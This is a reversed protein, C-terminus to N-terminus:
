IGVRVLCLSGDDRSDSRRDFRKKKKKEKEKRSLCNSLSLSLFLQISRRISPSITMSIFPLATDPVGAQALVLIKEKEKQVGQRWFNADIHCPQIIVRRKNNNNSNNNNIKEKSLFPPNSSSVGECRRKYKASLYLSSQALRMM